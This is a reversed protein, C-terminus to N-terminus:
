YGRWGGGSINLVTGSIWNGGPGVLFLCALAVPEPGVVGLPFAAEYARLESETMAHGTGTPGPAIANVLIGEAELQASLGITLGILGAKAANYAVSVSASARRASISSVFIIRGHHRAIMHPVVARTCWWGGSLDTEIIENWHSPDLEWARGSPADLGANNVLVDVHGYLEIAGAILREASEPQRIDVWLASAQHGRSRLEAAAAAAEDLQIDSLLVVGGAAALHQAISLGIGRAAGTVICVTGDLTRSVPTAEAPM